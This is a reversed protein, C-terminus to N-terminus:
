HQFIILFRETGIQGGDGGCVGGDWKKDAQLDLATDVIASLEDEGPWGAIVQRELKRFEPAGPSIFVIGAGSIFFVARRFSLPRGQRFIRFLRSM